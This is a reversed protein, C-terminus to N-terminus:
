SSQTALSRGRAAGQRWARFPEISGRKLSGITAMVAYGIHLWAFCLDDRLGRDWNRLRMYTSSQAHSDLWHTTTRGIASRKHFLRAKPAIVLLIGRPLRACLDIDEALSGGTLKPDFRLTRVAAARFSMLAGTFQRVRQPGHLRLKDAHWYIPQREDHFAGRVFVKEFLRRSFQPPTYNTPIGSVGTVEPTYVAIIEALYEHELIVDDDLFVWIDGTARDMALNRAEAAGSVSPAYIYTLAIPFSSSNSPELAPTSGQDVIVIEDPRLTQMLISHLTVHLDDSRNKTPIIVTIRLKNEDTQCPSEFASTDTDLMKGGM